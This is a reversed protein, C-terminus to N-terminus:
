HNAMDLLRSVAANPNSIEIASDITLTPISGHEINIQIRLESDKDRGSLNSYGITKCLRGFLVQNLNCGGTRDLGDTSTQWSKFLHAQAFSLGQMTIENLGEGGVVLGKGLLSIHEILRKMGETSTMSEVLCNYLNQTVLTVDLFVCNLGLDNTAKHVSKGLISRWMSLGPHVKVM